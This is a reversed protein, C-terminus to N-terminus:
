RVLSALIDVDAGEGFFKSDAVEVVVPKLAALLDELTSAARVREVIGKAAEDLDAIPNLCIFSPDNLWAQFTKSTVCATPVKKFTFMRQFPTDALAGMIIVTKAFIAPGGADALRKNAAAQQETTFEGFHGKGEGYSCFDEVDAFFQSRGTGM